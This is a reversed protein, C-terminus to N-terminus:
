RQQDWWAGGSDLNAPYKNVLDEIENDTLPKGTDSYYAATIYSDEGAAEGELDVVERGNLEFGENMKSKQYDLYHFVASM